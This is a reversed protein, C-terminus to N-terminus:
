NYIRGLGLALFECRRIGSKYEKNLRQSKRKFIKVM